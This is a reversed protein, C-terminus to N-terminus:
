VEKVPATQPQLVRNIRSREFEPFDPVGVSAMVGAIHSVVAVCCTEAITCLRNVSTVEKYELAEDGQKEVHITTWAHTRLAIDVLSNRGNSKMPVNPLVVVSYGAPGHSAIASSGVRSLTVGSKKLEAIGNKTLEEADILTLRGGTKKRFRELHCQPSFVM